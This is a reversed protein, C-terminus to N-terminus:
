AICRHEVAISAACVEGNDERAVDACYPSAGCSRLRCADIASMVECCCPVDVNGPPNRHGFSYKM